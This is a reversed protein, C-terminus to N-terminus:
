GDDPKAESASEFAGSLSAVVFESRSPFCSSVKTEASVVFRYSVLVIIM